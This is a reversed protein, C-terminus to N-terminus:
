DSVNIKSMQSCEMSSQFIDGFPGTVQASCIMGTCHVTALLPLHVLRSLYLHSLWERIKGPCFSMKEHCESKNMTCFRFSNKFAHTLSHLLCTKAITQDNPPLYLQLVIKKQKGKM